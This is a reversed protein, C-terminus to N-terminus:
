IERAVYSISELARAMLRGATTLTLCDSFPQGHCKGPTEVTIAGSHSCEDMGPPAAHPAGCHPCTVQAGTRPPQFLRQKVRKRLEPSLWRAYSSGPYFHAIAQHLWPAIEAVTRVTEETLYRNMDHGLRIEIGGDRFWGIRVDIESDYIKHLEVALDPAANDIAMRRIARWSPSIPHSIRLAWFRDPRHIWEGVNVSRRHQNEVDVLRGSEHGRVGDFAIYVFM